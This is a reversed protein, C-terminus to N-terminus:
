LICRGYPILLVRYEQQDADQFIEPDSAWEM